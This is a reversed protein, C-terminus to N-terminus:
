SALASEPHAKKMHTALAKAYVYKKGCIDCVYPAKEKTTAKVSFDVAESITHTMAIATGSGVIEAPSAGQAQLTEVVRQAIRTIFEEEEDDTVAYVAEWEGLPSNHQDITEPPMGPCCFLARWSGKDYFVISQITAIRLPGGDPNEQTYFLVTPDPPTQLVKM